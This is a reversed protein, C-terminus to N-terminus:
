SLINNRVCVPLLRGDPQPYQNCCKIARSQDYTFRDMFHHIFISKVHRTGLGLVESHEPKGGLENLELLVRKVTKLVDDRQPFLGDSSWLSYLSDRVKLLNDADTALLAQNKIIDLYDETEVVRPLPVLEDSVTKLLYTLAFCTPHSCPLPSFDSRQLVGGSSESLLAVVDPITLVDLPDFSYGHQARGAHALPQVMMSLVEDASFLLELLAPLEHENVGKALTVTLSLRGGRAIVGEILKRKLAGLEPMGRLRQNTEASFGDLQLSLVVGRECLADLLAEDKALRVGNTSLSLIGIESRAQVADVIELLRPHRTPEGGSLNLMNVRGECRVLTDLIADIEDLTRAEDSSEGVLCIPCALECSETIEVIPVCTHQQHEPCLGCSVGPCARQKPVSRAKPATGPKVYALSRVYWDRDSSILADSRGHEPCHKVLLVREGRFVVKADCLEGCSNCLARTASFLQEDRAVASPQLGSMLM